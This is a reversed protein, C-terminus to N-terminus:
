PNIEFGKIGAIFSALHILDKSDIKQDDNVDIVNEFSAPTSFGEIDMLNSALFVLDLSNVTGDATLDGPGIVNLFKTVTNSSSTGDNVKYTFADSGSFDDSPSYNLINSLTSVIGNKADDVLTLTVEDNEPDVYVPNVAFDITNYGVNSTSNFAIPSNNKQKMVSIVGSTKSSNTMGDSVFFTFTDVGYFGENPFYSGNGDADVTLVGNSTQEEITYVLANSDSDSGELYFRIEEDQNTTSSFPIAVPANNLLKRVTLSIIGEQSEFGDIDKATYTFFDEGLFTDNPKYLVEGTDSDLSVIGGQPHQVLSYTLGSNTEPDYGQLQIVLSSKEKVYYFRNYAVPPLNGKQLVNIILIATNSTGISNTAVYPINVFGQFTNAPTYTLVGTSSNVVLVGNMDAESVVNFDLPDPSNAAFSLDKLNITISHGAYVVKETGIAVPSSLQAFAPVALALTLFYHAFNKVTLFFIM